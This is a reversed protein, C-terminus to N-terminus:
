SFYGNWRARLEDEISSASGTGQPHLVPQAWRLVSLCISVIFSVAHMRVYKPLDLTIAVCM